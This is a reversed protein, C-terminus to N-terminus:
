LKSRNLKNFYSAQLREAHALQQQYMHLTCQYHKLLRARIHESLPSVEVAQVHFQTKAIAQRLRILYKAHHHSRERILQELWTRNVSRWDIPKQLVADWETPQPLPSETFSEDPNTTDSVTRWLAFLEAQLNREASGIQHNAVTFIYAELLQDFPTPAPNMTFLLLISNASTAPM